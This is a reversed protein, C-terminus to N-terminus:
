ESRTAGYQAKLLDKCASFMKEVSIDEMCNPHITCTNLYCCKCPLSTVVKKGNEYVDIEAASTPGFFAVVPVRNALAIHMALSDSTIILQCCNIIAAFDLLGLDVPAAIVNSRNTRTVICSNRTREAEGGLIVVGVNFEDALKLALSATQEEGWQKLAWRPGAGTNVGVILRSGNMGQDHLWQRAFQESEVPINLQPRFVPAPLGLCEYLIEGYTSRNNRKLENAKNLGGAIAPRLLGSGFWAALDDTYEIDGCSNIYTGSLSKTRLRSAASSSDYNEDLSIVWDYEDSRWPASEGDDLFGLRNIHSNFRLLDMADPSTIWTIEVDATQRKLAPLIVTTRLVDGLASIKFIAIKM